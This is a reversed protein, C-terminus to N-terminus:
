FPRPGCSILVLASVQIGVSCAGFESLRPESKLDPYVVLAQLAKRLPVYMVYMFMCVAM